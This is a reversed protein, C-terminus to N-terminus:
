LRVDVVVRGLIEGNLIKGIRETLIELSCIDIMSNPLIPHSLESLKNWIEKRLEMSTEASNIGLLNNGRIIFPFVTTSFLPSQTLGCSAVSGFMKLSAIVNALITGGVTDIAGAWQGKMMAKESQTAFLSSDLIEDAGLSILYENASKKRTAAAIKYGSQHLIAVALSGVGGSAGTVLVPGQEPRLGNLELHHLALGATFGATGLVMADLFSLSKPKRVVWEAPVTVFEAWGGDTNMGIDYGTIIVEDGVKFLESKSDEIIGCADIGPTHPYHKTVGKNGTASLADKYNLSSYKVRILVQSNELPPVDKFGISQAFQGEIESVIYAKLKM